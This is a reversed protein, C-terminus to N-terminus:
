RPAPLLPRRLPQGFFPSAPATSRFITLRRSVVRAPHASVGGRPRPTARSDDARPARDALRAAVDHGSRYTDHEKAQWGSPFAGGAIGTLGTDARILDHRTRAMGSRAYSHTGRILPDRTRDITATGAILGAIGGGLAAVLYETALATMAGPGAFHIHRLRMAGGDEIIQVHIPSMARGARMIVIDTASMPCSIGRDTRIRYRPDRAPTRLHQQRPLPAPPPHDTRGRM